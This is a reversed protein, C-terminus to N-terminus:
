AGKTAVLYAAAALVTDLDDGLLGIARNCTNCLLGRVCQGCSTDGPCCSHDHDIVWTVTGQRRPPLACIACLGSQERLMEDFREPTIGHSRILAERRRAKNCPICYSQLGDRSTSMRYFEDSPKTAKCSVCAKASPVVKPTAALAARRNAHYERQAQPDAYPM